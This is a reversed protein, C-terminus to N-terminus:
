FKLLNHWFQKREEWIEFRELRYVSVKFIAERIALDTFFGGAICSIHTQDRPQSARRSFSIAALELIRAQSIGHVSSGPPSCDMLKFPTLYLKTVLGGVVEFM